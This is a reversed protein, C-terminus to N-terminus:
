VKQKKKNYLTQLGELTSGHFVFEKSNTRENENHKDYYDKIEDRTIKDVVM